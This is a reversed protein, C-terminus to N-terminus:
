KKAKELKTDTLAWIFAEIDAVQEDTIPTTLNLNIEAMTKIAEKMTAAEGDHFYPATLSANRLMAVKFMYKDGENKTVDFRGMDKTNAYPKVLGMKQYINGGFLPGTHCITCNLEMFTKLGKKEQATLASLNGAIWQDYRNKSILTREFAAIAVAINHFSLSPKDNPFIKAFMKLYEPDAAIAKEVDKESKMGMEVPNLIPGKAQEVLDAARGDWFQVFQYGANLVTNSNRTGITGPLSGESLKKNDVGAMNNTLDHCTNCSQNNNVSLRTDNYLKEGLAIMEPTDNESGPMKDPLAGFIAKAKTMLETEQEPTLQAADADPTEKKEGCSIILMAALAFITLLKFKM